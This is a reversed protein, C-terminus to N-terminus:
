DLDLFEESIVDKCLGKFYDVTAGSQAQEAALEDTYDSFKYVTFKYGSGTNKYFDIVPALKASTIKIEGDIREVTIEAMGGCMQNLNTQHSIFNGISYYVLMKKGTEENTYWEVPQLVHPHTGIVIDVGLSSFLKVYEKQQESVDHSNETGWHPFVIVVDANERATKVDATVKEETLLNVLYPKDDPVPIGNTGYTYNLIAFTIDNKTIYTIADYDEQSANTGVHTVESYNSFFELEKEIGASGVDMSHNTACTFVDFGANIAAEGVEWPTNFMPYGSYAFSDGGLMTEQNIVALDAAQIYSSMNAYFADYNLSGDSQEGASICTNHILNDGVAVISVKTNLPTTDTPETTQQTTKSATPNELDSKKTINGSIALASVVVVACIVPILVPLVKKIDLRNKSM